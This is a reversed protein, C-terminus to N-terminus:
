HEQWLRLKKHKNGTRLCIYTNKKTFVKRRCDKNHVGLYHLFKFRRLIKQM